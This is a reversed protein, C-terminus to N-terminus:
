LTSEILLDASAIGAEPEPSLPRSAEESGVSNAERQVISLSRVSSGPRRGISGPNGQQSNIETVPVLGPRASGLNSVLRRERELSSLVDFPVPAAGSVSSSARVV